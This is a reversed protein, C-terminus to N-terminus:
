RPAAIFYYDTGQHFVEIFRDRDCAPSGSLYADLLFVAYSMHDLFDFVLEPTSNYFESAGKGCEFIVVPRDNQLISAAGRMVDLEGGEVDIKILDIPSRSQLVADMCRVEVEILDVQPNPTKYARRQIGSYAPEDKVLHFSTKGSYHSLAYPFVHVHQSAKAQLQAYFEPIPEFAYHQGNPAYRRILDLMEGKHAGVDVCNSNPRLVTHLIQQTLIDYRINRTIPIRCLIFVRRLFDKIIGKM